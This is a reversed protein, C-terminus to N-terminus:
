LVQLILPFSPNFSFPNRTCYYRFSGVIIAEQFVQDPITGGGEIPNSLWKTKIPESIPEKFIFYKNNDANLLNWSVNAGSNINQIYPYLFPDSGGDLTPFPDTTQASAFVAVQAVNITLIATNSQLTTGNGLDDTVTCYYNGANVSIVDELNLYPNNEGVIQNGNFYWQYVYPTNGGIAEVIFTVDAGSNVTQSVPHIIIMFPSIVPATNFERRGSLNYMFNAVQDLTSNSPNNEYMFQVSKRVTRLLHVYSPVLTGGKFFMEKNHLTADKVQTVKAYRIYLAVDVM